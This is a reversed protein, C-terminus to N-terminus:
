EGRGTRAKASRCNWAPMRVSASSPPSSTEAIRPLPLPSPRTDPQTAIMRNTIEAGLRSLGLAPARPWGPIEARDTGIIAPRIANETSPGTAMASTPLARGGDGNPMPVVVSSSSSTSAPTKCASNKAATIRWWIFAGEVLTDITCSVHFMETLGDIIESSNM